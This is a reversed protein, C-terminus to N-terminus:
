KELGIRKPQFVYLLGAVSSILSILYFWLSVWVAIQTDLGFYQAGYLFVLERAGLGGLTLPLVAFASSVLFLFFYAQFNANVHVSLLLCAMAGVQILQVVIGLLNTPLICSQFRPFLLKLGLFYALIFALTLALIWLDPVPFGPVNLAFLGAILLLAALGSIRDLLIAQFGIKTSLKLHKNLWWIKYGDGGIGGPLFLNYFMGLWYLRLNVIERLRLDIAKFYFNLRFSSVIKSLIYLTLAPIMWIFSTIKWASKIEVFDIKRFVWYLAIASILVKFLAKIWRM